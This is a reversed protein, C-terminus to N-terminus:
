ITRPPMPEPQLVLGALNSWASWYGVSTYPTVGELSALRAPLAIDAVCSLQKLCDTKMTKCPAMPASHGHEPQAPIMMDCPMGVAVVSHEASKALQSTTGSIIAFVIFVVLLRRM